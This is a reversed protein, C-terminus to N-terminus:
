GQLQNHIKKVSIAQKSTKMVSLTARYKKMGESNKKKTKKISEKKRANRKRSSYSGL